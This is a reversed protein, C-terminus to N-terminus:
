EYQLVQDISAHGLACEFIELSLGQDKCFRSSGENTVLATKDSDSGGAQFDRSRLQIGLFMPNYLDSSVSQFPHDSNPQGKYKIISFM